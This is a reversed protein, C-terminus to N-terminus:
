PEWAFDISIQGVSGDSAASFGQCVDSIPIYRDSFLGDCEATAGDRNDSM